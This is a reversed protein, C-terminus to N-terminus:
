HSEGALCVLDALTSRYVQFQKLKPQLKYHSELIEELGSLGTCQPRTFQITSMM